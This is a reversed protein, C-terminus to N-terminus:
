DHSVTKKATSDLVAALLMPTCLLWSFLACGLFTRWDYAIVILAPTAVLLALLGRM